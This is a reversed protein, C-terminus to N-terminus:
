PWLRQIPLKMQLETLVATQFIFDTCSNGDLLKLM